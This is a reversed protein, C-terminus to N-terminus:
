RTITAVIALTNVILLLPQLATGVATTPDTIKYIGQQDVIVIDNDQILLEQYRLIGIKTLDAVIVQPNNPDGRIIRIQKKKAKSTLGGAESILDLLTLNDRDILFKGQRAVEGFVNVKISVISVEIIPNNLITSYLKELKKSAQERSLGSLQVKGVLPM